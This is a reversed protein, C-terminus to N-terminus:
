PTPEPCPHANPRTAGASNTGLSSEVGNRVGTVLYFIAKGTPPDIGDAVFPDPLDCNTTALPTTQPDQTYLGQLRLVELDGRYESFATYGAEKQWAVDSARTMLILILGDNLDCVDGQGDHDFDSQDRNVELLCNDCDDAIGDGDSDLGAVVDDVVGNCDDDIGNCVEPSPTGPRCPPPNGSTCDTVTRKCAGVGCTATVLGFGEDVQGDCDDDIGNCVEPSPAGPICSQLVGGSCTSVTRMCAGVGCTTTGFGEDVQ